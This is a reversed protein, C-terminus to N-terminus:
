CRGHERSFIKDYNQTIKLILLDRGQKSRVCGQVRKALDFFTPYPFLENSKLALFKGWTTEGSNSNYYFYQRSTPDYFRLCSARCRAVM